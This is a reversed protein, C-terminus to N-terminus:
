VDLVVIAEFGEASEAVHLGSYTVAKIERLRSPERFRQLQAVLRAPREVQVDSAHWCCGDQEALYLLEDLWDVMLTELDLSEIIVERASEPLLPGTTDCGLVYELGRAAQLYLGSLGAAHVRLAIDAPHALETFGDSQM